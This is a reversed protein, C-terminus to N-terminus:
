LSDNQSQNSQRLKSHSLFIPVVAKVDLSGFAFIFHAAMAKSTKAATTKAYMKRPSPANVIWSSPLTNGRKLINCKAPSNSYVISINIAIAFWNKYSIIDNWVIEFYVACHSTQENWFREFKSYLIHLLSSYQFLSRSM